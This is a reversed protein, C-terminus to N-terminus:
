KKRLLIAIIILLALVILGYFVVVGLSWDTPVIHDDATWM